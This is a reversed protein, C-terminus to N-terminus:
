ELGYVNFWTQNSKRQKTRDKLRLRIFEIVQNEDYKRLMSNITNCGLECEDAWEKGTHSIGDVVTIKTTSKYKSNDELTVWRCNQPSYDQTSDERDITLSDKYGNNLAWDEFSSPNNLWEDCIKIGKAGYWKYNKNHVDYCRCKMGRFIEKLRKNSWLTDTNLYVDGLIKHKCAQTLKIHRFQKDTEWGCEKCRVHFM